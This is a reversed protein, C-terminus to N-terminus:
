NKLDITTIGLQLRENDEYKLSSMTDPNTNIWLDALEIPYKMYGLAYLVIANAYDSRIKRGGVESYASHMGLFADKDIFKEDGSLFMISCISLCKEDVATNLNDDYITLALAIGVGVEGGNSNLWVGKIDPFKQRLAVYREIDGTVIDGNIYIYKQTDGTQTQIDFVSMEAAITPPAFILSAIALAKAVKNM